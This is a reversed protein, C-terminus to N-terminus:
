SHSPSQVVLNLMKETAIVAAGLQDSDVGLTTFPDSRSSRQWTILTEVLAGTKGGPPIRVQYDALQPLKLEFSRAAKALAKMFADYGGDGSSKGRAVKGQFSLSVAAVPLASSTSHIDWSEVRVLQKEPTKLVDAIILPLDAITVTHKKDGLEVVRELVLDRKEPQLKIGLVKLNQDLSAKGAMKGLAYHRRRGFRRPLLKNAYLEAKWDGDAHIGATQTFVDRGIVPSNDAIQKGSFTAVMQSVATLKSEDVRTTASTLDRLCAVIEALRTNGAREGMGNVSTHIGRAGSEIAALCNANALGYDNHGHFEFHLDPWTRTMLGVYRATEQPSQSGLTDALYIRKVGLGALNKVHGFVYDFGDRVGSSWDELFVNVLLEREGAYRVTEAIREFHKEPSIRLQEECHRQSGKTLLNIVRGGMKVIWDVSAKGDVFGLIEVRDLLRSKRAWSTIRQVAQAEGDSVRASAIEIRDVKVNRLLLRALQLKESPTYAVNPTQEGDRLTTDMIQTAREAM